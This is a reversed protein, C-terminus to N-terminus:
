TVGRFDSPRAFGGIGAPFNKAALDPSFTGHADQLKAKSEWVTQLQAVKEELTMRRLLDEVRVSLPQRPDKYVVTGAAPAEAAFLPAAVALLAAATAAGVARANLKM